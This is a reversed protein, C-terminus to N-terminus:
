LQTNGVHCGTQFVDSIVKPKINHGDGPHEAIMGVDPLLRSFSYELAHLFHVIFCVDECPAQYGASAKQDSQNNGIQEVGKEGLDGFLEGTGDVAFAVREDHGKQFLIDLHLIALDTMQTSAPEIGRDDSRGPGLHRGRAENCFSVLDDDQSSRM